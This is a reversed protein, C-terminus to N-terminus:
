RELYSILNFISRSASIDDIQEQWDAGLKQQIMEKNINTALYTFSHAQEFTYTGIELIVRATKKCEYV